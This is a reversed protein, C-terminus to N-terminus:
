IRFVQHQILIHRGTRLPPPNAYNSPSVENSVVVFDFEISNVDLIKEPVFSFLESSEYNEFDVQFFDTKDSCCDSEEIHVEASCCADLVEHEDECMNAQPIIYSHEVGDDHCFHTFVGVGVSGAFTFIALALSLIQTIRKM